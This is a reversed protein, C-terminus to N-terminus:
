AAYPDDIVLHALLKTELAEMVEAEEDKIHDYGLLHLIGHIVMHTFHDELVVSAAEAEAHVTEFAIYIEGLLFPHDPVQEAKKLYREQEDEDLGPFSLVNTATDKNRYDHNLAQIFADDCLVVSLEVHSFNELVKGEAMNNCILECCEDITADYKPLVDVWRDCDVSVELNLGKPLSM